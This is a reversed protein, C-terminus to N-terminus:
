QWLSAEGTVVSERPPTGSKVQSVPPSLRRWEGALPGQGKLVPSLEWLFWRCGLWPWCHGKATQTHSAARPLTVDAPPVAPQFMDGKWPPLPCRVSGERGPVWHTGKKAGANLDDAQAVAEVDVPIVLHVVWEM